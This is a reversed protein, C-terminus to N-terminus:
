NASFNRKQSLSEMEAALKLKKRTQHIEHVRHMQQSRIQHPQNRRPKKSHHIFKTQEEQKQQILENKIVNKLKAQTVLRDFVAEQDEQRITSSNLYLLRSKRFKNANPSSLISFDLGGGLELPTSTMDVSLTRGHGFASFEQNASM